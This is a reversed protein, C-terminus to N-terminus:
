TFREMLTKIAAKVLVNNVNGKRYEDLAYAFYPQIENNADGQWGAAKANNVVSVFWSEAYKSDLPYERYDESKGAIYNLMLFRKICQCCNGCAVHSKSGDPNHCSWSHEIISDISVGNAIAWATVDMKTMVDRQFPSVLTIKGNPLYPKLSYSFLETAKNVFTTNKDYGDANNEEATAGMWIEDPLEQAAILSAFVMNRGPIFINGYPSDDKTKYDDISTLWDVNRVSVFAPLKALEQETAVHGHNYYVSVVEAEPHKAKAYAHLVYSDLGGSYMIAIKMCRRVQNPEEQAM